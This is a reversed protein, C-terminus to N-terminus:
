MSNCLHLSFDNIFGQNEHKKSNIYHTVNYTKNENALMISFLAYFVKM